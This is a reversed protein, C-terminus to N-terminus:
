CCLVLLWESIVLRPDLSRSMTVNHVWRPDSLGQPTRAGGLFKSELASTIDRGADTDVIVAEVKFRRPAM